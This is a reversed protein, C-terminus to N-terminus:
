AGSRTRGGDVHIIQGTIFGAEDSVLFALADAVDRPVCARKITQQSIIREMMEDASPGDLPLRGAFGETLVVTPALSNVTIGRDALENALAKTVAHVAGKSAIYALDRTQPHLTVASGTTVIRGWGAAAMAPVFERAFHVISEVNIAHVRRWVESTVTELTTIPMYAANNVFIDCCGFLDLVTSAAGEINWPESVDCVLAYKQGNGSLSRLLPTADDRDIVVVNAGDAALRECYARGIGRAGGTVVATKGELSM